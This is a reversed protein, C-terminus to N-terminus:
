KKFNKKRNREIAMAKRVAKYEEMSICGDGSVDANELKEILKQNKISAKDLCGNTFVPQTRLNPKHQQGCNMMKGVVMGLAFIIAWVIIHKVWHATGHCHCNCNEGCECKHEMNSNQKSTTKTTKIPM